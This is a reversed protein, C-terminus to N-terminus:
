LVLDLRLTARDTYGNAPFPQDCRELQLLANVGVATSPLRRCELRDGKGVVSSRDLTRSRKLWREFLSTGQLIDTQLRSKDMSRPGEVETRSRNELRLVRSESGFFQANRFRRAKPLVTYLNSNDMKYVRWQMKQQQM